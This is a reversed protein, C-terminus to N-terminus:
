ANHKVKVLRIRWSVIVWILVLGLTPLWETRRVWELERFELPNLYTLYSLPLTASLYLWPAAALWRWSSETPIPPIFPLFALLILAYWPHVTPILLLYAMFPIALLRLNALVDTRQRALLWVIVLTVLLALLALQKAPTEANTVGWAPLWNVTLWHFLGSNFNWQEAYIRAAGFLGRGDLPGTLGWGAALGFPTLVAATVVGYRTLQKWNWRWFLIPLLLVPLFKTLTALALVVPVPWTSMKSQNSSFTLWLALLMLLIMWADIHAGHAVEIIVLPNWLYLLLRRDPLGAIALLRVILLGSLLDCATLIVQFFITQLPFLRTTVTFLLQAGPLYPSAMWRHNALARQPIDLHDLEPADIPYAYPSVGQNAVYGDWLYRYIDDSLTPTTFLLLGRFIIAGGWVLAPPITRQRETWLLSLLYAAFALGYWLLTEPTYEDRLTGYRFQMSVLGGYATLSIAALIIGARM